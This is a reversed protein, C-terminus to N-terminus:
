KGLGAKNQQVKKAAFYLPMLKKRKYVIVPKWHQNLLFTEYSLPKSNQYLM